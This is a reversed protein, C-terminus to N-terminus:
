FLHLDALQYQPHPLRKHQHNRHNIRVLHLLLLLILVLARSVEEKHPLFFPDKGHHNYVERQHHHLQAHIQYSYIIDKTYM